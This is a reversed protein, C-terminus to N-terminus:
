FPGTAPMAAKIVELEERADFASIAAIQSLYPVSIALNQQLCELARVLREPVVLWGIRWGTM